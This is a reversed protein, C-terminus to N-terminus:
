GGFGGFEAVDMPTAHDVSRETVLTVQGPLCKVAANIRDVEEVEEM